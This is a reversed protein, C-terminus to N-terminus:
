SRRKSKGKRWRPWSHDHNHQEEHENYRAMILAWKWRRHIGIAHIVKFVVGVFTAAGAFLVGLAQFTSELPILSGIVATGTGVALILIDSPRVLHRLRSLSVNPPDDRPIAYPM